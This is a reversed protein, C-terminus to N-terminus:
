LDVGAFADQRRLCQELFLNRKMSYKRSVCVYNEYSFFLLLKKYFMSQIILYFSEGEQRPLTRAKKEPLSINLAFDFFLKRRTEAPSSIHLSVKREGHVADERSSFSIFDQINAKM